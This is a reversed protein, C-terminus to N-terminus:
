AANEIKDKLENFLETKEIDYAALEKLTQMRKHIAQRSFGALFMVKRIDELTYTGQQILVYWMADNLANRKNQEKMYTTTNLLNVISTKREGIIFKFHKSFECVRQHRLADIFADTTVDSIRIYDTKFVKGISRASKNQIEYRLANDPTEPSTNLYNLELKNLKNKVVKDYFGITRTNNRMQITEGQHYNKKYRYQADRTIDDLLVIYKSTAHQMNYLTSNDLRTFICDEISVDAYNQLHTQLVDGLGHLDEISLTKFSTGHLLAPLSSVGFNLYNNKYNKILSKLKFLMEVIM